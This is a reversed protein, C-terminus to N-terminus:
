KQDRFVFSQPKEGGAGSITAELAGDARKAYRIIKPFDHAPNEFVALERALRTLRFEVPPRGNPQAIYVLTGGQEVIRLYEFAVLRDGNLTRSVALMTGGAPSTWREEISVGRSVGRSVGGDGGVWTGAIWAVDAIVADTSARPSQQAPLAVSGIVVTIYLAPVLARPM